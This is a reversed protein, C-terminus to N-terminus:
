NHSVPITVQYDGIKAVVTEPVDVVCFPIAVKGNKGVPFNDVYGAFATTRNEYPFGSTLPEIAAGDVLLYSYRSLNLSNSSTNTDKYSVNELTLLLACFTGDQSFWTGGTNRCEATLASNTEFGEVTINLDGYNTEVSIVDSVNATQPESSKSKESSGGSCGVLAVACVLCLALPILMKKKM